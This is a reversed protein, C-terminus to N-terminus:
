TGDTYRGGGLSKMFRPDYAYRVNQGRTGPNSRQPALPM